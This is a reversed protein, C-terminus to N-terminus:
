WATWGGDVALDVGTVYSSASSLLFLVPGVVEDALGIRGMPVKQELRALFEPALEKVEPRPFAGPSVANVRINRDALHCALYRTMQLLGAKTTGYHVPNNQGSDGYISPDPSVKGYMSSVNVISVGGKNKVATDQLINLAQQILHFPGSLNQACAMSFDDVDIAEITGARGSYANNVIGDLRGHSKKIWEIANSRSEDNSIDLVLVQAKGGSEILEKCLSNLSEETRGSLIVEAGSEVLGKAIACGFYGAAGTLLIVRDELSFYNM